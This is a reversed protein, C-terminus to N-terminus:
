AAEAMAEPGSLYQLDARAAEDAAHVPLRLELYVQALAALQEEHTLTTQDPM